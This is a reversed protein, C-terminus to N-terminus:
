RHDVLRAADLLAELRAPDARPLLAQLSAGGQLADAFEQRTLCGPCYPVGDPNLPSEPDEVWAALDFAVADNYNVGAPSSSGTPVCLGVGDPILGLEPNSYMSNIHRCQAGGSGLLAAGCRLTPDGAATVEPDATQSHTSIARCFPSVRPTGSGQQEYDLALFAVAGIPASNLFCIGPRSQPECEDMFLLEPAGAAPAACLFEATPFYPYCGRGESCTSAPDLPDCQPVCLGVGDGVVDEFYRNVRICTAAQGCSGREGFICPPTCVGEPGCVLPGACDDIRSGDAREILQCAEGEAVAGDPVCDTAGNGDSPPLIVGCKEGPACGIQALPDCGAVAADAGAPADGAGCGAAAVLVLIRM